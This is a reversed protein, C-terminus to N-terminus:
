ACRGLCRPHRGRNMLVTQLFCAGGASTHASAFKGRFGSAPPRRLTTQLAAASSKSTNRRVKGFDNSACSSIVKHYQAKSISPQVSPSCTRLHLHYDDCIRGSAFGVATKRKRSIELTASEANTGRCNLCFKWLLCVLQVGFHSFSVSIRRRIYCLYAIEKFSMRTAHNDSIVFFM